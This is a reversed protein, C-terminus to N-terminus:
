NKIEIEEKQKRVGWLFGAKSHQFVKLFTKTIVIASFMSVLVGLGLTLGFGRVMSSGFWYLIACTILTSINGDRISTWARKFGEAQALDMPKGARLEERLREFILVNADVAMGISLIFGAVGALTLTVPILKFLALVVLGYVALAIVALLGPLRYYILMFLAILIVGIIGALFSKEVSIRGLTPGVNQQSILEIPVPLAGANLRMALDKAEKITFSGTIQARGGPIKEQVTPTSVPFEDLFIGVRNGVNKETIKAFLKKGEDNFILTVEPAGTNQEFDVFVRELQKGTLGTYKWADEFKLYDIASKTKILIHSASIEKQGEVEQEQGEIEILMAGSTREDNKKIIHYGFQTKILRPIIQDNAVEEAFIAQEFEKVMAGKAFWGLEGGKVASGPDESKKKAIETFKTPDALVQNLIDGANSEAQANFDDVEKQEAPTLETQANPDFTKFELLPTEGIMSIAENVDTVGPLEIIVRWDSGVKSTQVLPEGIGLANVRREIVDRVGEVASPQDKQPIDTIDAQYELHTGGQLDLGLHVKIERKKGAITPDPGKPWDVLGALLALILILFISFWIKQRPGLNFTYARQPSHQSM